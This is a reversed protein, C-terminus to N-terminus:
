TAKKSVGCCVGWTNLGPQRRTMWEEAFIFHMQADALWQHIEPLFLYRMRHREQVNDINETKKDLITLDYSVDVINENLNVTPRAIRKVKIVEDELQKERYEPQQALVAPGYWFDFLFLGGPRLHKFVTQFGQKLDDNTTLYSFVHFLSLVVDFQRGLDLGRIDGQQFHTRKSIAQPLQAQRAHALTIMPESIDTGTIEFNREALLCAHRGTGCGLELITRADPIFRNIKEQIYNVEAPYDKDKYLLDYYRAYHQFASM